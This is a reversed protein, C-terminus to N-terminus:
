YNIIGEGTFSIFAFVVSMLGHDTTLHIFGILNLVVQQM